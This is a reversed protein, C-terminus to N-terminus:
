RQILKKGKKVQMNKNVMEWTGSKPIFAESSGGQHYRMHDSHTKFAWLNSLKNNYNDGDVHHIIWDHMFGFNSEFVRRGLRQGDRHEQYPQSGIYQFYCKKSCFNHISSRILCRPKVFDKNCIHCKVPIRHKSTDIGNKRLYFWIAQRSVGFHESIPQLSMLQTTYMEIAKTFDHTPKM